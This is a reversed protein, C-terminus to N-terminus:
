AIRWAFGYFNNANGTWITTGGAAIGSGGAGNNSYFYAWTGGAPLNYPGSYGPPVALPLWQGIGAATTPAPAFASAHKGDVTDADLGSGAGDIPLLKALVDAATYAAANLPTYGLRSVINPGTFVAANLPTYGIWNLVSAAASSPTLVYAGDTGAQAQALTALQVVGMAAQSAPPNIFNANGFTIADALGAAFTIDIALMGISAATKTYIPDAQGYLAFLTGDALYLAFSNASYANASSDQMVVHITDPTVQSGSISTIRYLEGPLSTMTAAPTIATASVGIATVTIAQTGTASANILEALGATTLTIPLSM